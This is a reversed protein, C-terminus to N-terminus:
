EAWLRCLGRGAWEGTMVTGQGKIAFCHDIYFLFPEARGGDSRSGSSSGSSSTGVGSSNPPLRVRELLTDVLQQVGM